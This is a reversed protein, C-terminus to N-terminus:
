CVSWECVHVYACMCAHVHVYVYVYAISTPITQRPKHFPSDNFLFTQLQTKFESLTPLSQLTAPLSNWASPTIFSFFM